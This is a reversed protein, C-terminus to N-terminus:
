KKVAAPRGRKVPPKPAEVYEFGRTGDGVLGSAVSEAVDIVSGNPGKVHAM